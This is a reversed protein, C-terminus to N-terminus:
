ACAEVQQPIWVDLVFRGATVDVTSSGGLLHARAEVGQLGKGARGPITTGSPNDAVIRLGGDHNTVALRLERPSAYRMANTLAEQIIRYLAHSRDPALDLNLPIDVDLALGTSRSEDILDGISRLDTVQTSRNSEGTRLIRLADDLDAQARRCVMLITSLADAADNVDKGVTARGREAQLSAITLAHGVSDHIDRALLNQVALRERDAESEALRQELSPGLMRAALLDIGVISIVSVACTAALIVFLLVRIPSELVSGVVLSFATSSAWRGSFAEEVRWSLEGLALPILGVAVVISAGSLLHVFAFIVSNRYPASQEVETGLLEAALTRECVHIWPLFCLAASLLLGGLGLATLAIDDMFFYSSLVLAM